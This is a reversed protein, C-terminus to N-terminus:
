TVQNRTKSKTNWTLSLKQNSFPSSKHFNMFGSSFSFSKNCIPYDRRARAYNQVHDSEILKKHKHKCPKDKSSSLHLSSHVRSPFTSADQEINPKTAQMTEKFNQQIYKAVPHSFQSFTLACRVLAYMFTFSQPYYEINQDLIANLGGIAAMETHIYMVFHHPLPRLEINAADSDVLYEDSLAKKAAQSPLSDFQSAHKHKAKERIM